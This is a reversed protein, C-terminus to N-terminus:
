PGETLRRLESEEDLTEMLLPPAYRPNGEHEETDQCFSLMITDISMEVVAFFLKAVIYGLAWSVQVYL